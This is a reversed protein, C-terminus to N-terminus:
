RSIFPLSQQRPQILSGPIDACSADCAQRNLEERVYKCHKCWPAYFMVAYDTTWHRMNSTLTATDLPVLPETVSSGSVSGLLGGAGLALVAAVTWFLSATRRRYRHTASKAMEKMLRSQNCHTTDRVTPASPTQKPPAMSNLKGQTPFGIVIKHVGRQEDVDLMWVSWMRRLNVTKPSLPSLADPVM